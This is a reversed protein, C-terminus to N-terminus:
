YTKIFLCGKEIEKRIAKGEIAIIKNPAAIKAFMKIQIFKIPFPKLIFQTGYFQSSKKGQTNSLLSIKSNKTLIIRKKSIMGKIVAANM